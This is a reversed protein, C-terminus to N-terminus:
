SIHRFHKGFAGRFIAGKYNPLITKQKFKMTFSLRYFEIEPTQM